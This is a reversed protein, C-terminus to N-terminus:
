FSDQFFAVDMERYAPSDRCPLPAQQPVKGQLSRTVPSTINEKQTLELFHSHCVPAQSFQFGQESNAILFGLPDLLLCAPPQSSGVGLGAGAWIAASVM